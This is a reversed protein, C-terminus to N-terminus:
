LLVHKISRGERVPVEDDLERLTTRLLDTRRRYESVNWFSVGWQLV